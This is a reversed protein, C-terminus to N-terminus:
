ISRNKREVVQNQNEFEGGHDSKICSISYGKENQVKTCFVRFADFIDDKNALFLIWTSRSYDDVIVFAYYKGSLSTYKSPGFLDM